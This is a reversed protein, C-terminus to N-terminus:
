KPAGTEDYIDEDTLYHGSRSAAERGIEMLRAALGAREAEDRELAEALADRIAGTATTHRRAALALAMERVRPDKINLTPM